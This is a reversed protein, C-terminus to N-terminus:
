PCSVKGSFLIIDNKRIVFLFPHDARFVTSEPLFKEVINNGSVAAAETGDENVEIRSKHVLKSLYLRGGSAIGSLDARSEEFIDTLGLAKLHYKIEYNKEIKFQPLFVRVYQHSMKQPNTWKMLNEFTLQKEIQFLDSEPLVVYMSIGGHYRLELVQMNPDQIVSLNFRREQYMMAVIKGPCQPSKFPCHLTDGKPFASEWLGKFYAANVLVMVASSSFSEDGIINKIKGHTENEVWKNMKYKSEQVANTFDVREVKAQYLKEACKIYDEHIDFVKEAFVGNVMTLEYGKHPTNIDSVLRNLQSQLGQQANSSNGRGSLRNYRLVKDMQSACDGRAGLRVVALATFISLSSFFVNGSGQNNDMERFLDFGFDANVAAFSAMTFRLAVEEWLAESAKVASKLPEAEERRLSRVGGM